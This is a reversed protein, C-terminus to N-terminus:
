KGAPIKQTTNTKITKTETTNKVTTGKSTAPAVKKVTKPPMPKSVAPGSPYTTTTTKTAAQAPIQTSVATAVLLASLTYIMKKKM